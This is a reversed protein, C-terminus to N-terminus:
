PEIREDRLRVLEGEGIMEPVASLDIARCCGDLEPEVGICWHQPHLEQRPLVSTLGVTAGSEQTRDDVDTFSFTELQLLTFGFSVVILVALGGIVLKGRVGIRM